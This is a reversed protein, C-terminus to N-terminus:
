FKKCARKGIKRMKTPIERVRSSVANRIRIKFKRFIVHRLFDILKNAVKTKIEQKKMPSKIDLGFHRGLAILDDKKLTEFVKDEPSALFDTVSFVM